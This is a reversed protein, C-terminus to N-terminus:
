SICGAMNGGLGGRSMSDSPLARGIVLVVRTGTLGADGEGLLTVEALSTGLTLSEGICTASKTSVM